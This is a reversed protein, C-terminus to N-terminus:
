EIKVILGDYREEPKPPEKCVIEKITNIGKYEFYDFDANYHEECIAQGLKVTSTYYESLGGILAGVLGGILLLIIVMTTDGEM